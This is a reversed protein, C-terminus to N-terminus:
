HPILAALLTAKPTYGRAVTKKGDARTVIITPVVEVGFAKWLNEEEGPTLVKIKLGPREAKLATIEDDEHRCHPCGDSKFYLIEEGVASLAPKSSPEGGAKVGAAPEPLSGPDAPPAPKKEAGAADAKQKESLRALIESARAIKAMREKQWAIYAQGSEDTPNELFALVQRPPVYTTMRGDPLRIPEAWLSEVQGTIANSPSAAPDDKWFAVRVKQGFFGGKPPPSESAKEQARALPPLAAVFVTIWLVVRM